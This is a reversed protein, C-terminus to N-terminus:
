SGRSRRSASCSRATPPRCGHLGARFGRRRRARTRAPVERVLRLLEVAAARDAHGRRAAGRRLSERRPHAESRRGTRRQHRVDRAARGGCPPRASRSDAAHFRPSSGPHQRRTPRHRLDLRGTERRHADRGRPWDSRRDRHGLHGASQGLQEYRRRHDARWLCGRRRSASTSNRPASHGVMRVHCRWARSLRAPCAPWRPSTASTRPWRRGGRGRPGVEALVFDTGDMLMDTTVLLPGTPPALVACDDGPGILVRPDAPTRARLWAIFDFEGPM